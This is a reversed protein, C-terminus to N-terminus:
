FTHLWMTYVFPKMGNITGICNLNYLISCIMYTRVSCNTHDVLWFWINIIPVENGRSDIEKNKEKLESELESQMHMQLDLSSQLKAVKQQLKNLM